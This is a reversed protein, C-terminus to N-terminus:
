FEEYYQKTLKKIKNVFSKSKNKKAYDTKDNYEEFDLEDETFYNYTSSIYVTDTVTGGLSNKASYEVEWSLTKCYELLDYLEYIYQADKKMTYKVKYIHRIKFSDPDKLENDQFCALAYALGKESKSYKAAANIPMTNAMLIAFALVIVILNTKKKM